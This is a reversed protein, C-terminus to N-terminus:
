SEASGLEDFQEGFKILCFLCSCRWAYRRLPLGRMRAWNAQMALPLKEVDVFSILWLSEIAAACVSGPGYTCYRSRLPGFRM